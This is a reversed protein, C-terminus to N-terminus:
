RPRDAAEVAEHNVKARALLEQIFRRVARDSNQRELLSRIEGRCEDLTRARAPDKADVRLVHFGLATQIPESHVGPALAFAVAELEVPLQGRAFRGMQGGTSAEPARSMSRAIVEFSKPDKQLRRLVDRAENETPVLIQHLTVTELAGLEVRHEDYHAAIEPEAVAPAAAADQLLRQVAEREAEAGAHLRLLGRRRAELTLLQEEVFSDFLARRVAQDLPGERELAKLHRDFDSRRVTEDGLSLVVPDPLSRHCTLLLAASIM